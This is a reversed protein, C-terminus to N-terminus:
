HERLMQQEHAAGLAQIQQNQVELLEQLQQMQADTLPKATVQTEHSSGSAEPAPQISERAGDLRTQLMHEPNMMRLIEDRKEQQLQTQRMQAMQQEHVQQLQKLQADQQQLLLQLRQKQEDSLTALSSDDTANAQALIGEAEAHSSLLNEVAPVQSPELGLEAATAAATQHPPHYLGQVCFAFNLDPKLM